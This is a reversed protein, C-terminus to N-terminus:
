KHIKELVLIMMAVIGNFTTTQFIDYENYYGQLSPYLFKYYIRYVNDIFMAFPIFWENSFDLYQFAATWGATLVGAALVSEEMGWEDFYKTLSESKFVGRNLAIQLALDGIAGVFFGSKIMKNIFFFFCVKQILMAKNVANYIDWVKM